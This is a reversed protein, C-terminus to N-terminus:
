LRVWSHLVGQLSYLYIVSLNLYFRRWVIFIFTFKLNKKGLNRQLEIENQVDKLKFLFKDLSCIYFMFEQYFNEFMEVM